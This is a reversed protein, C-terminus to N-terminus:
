KHKGGMTSSVCKKPRTNSTISAKKHNCAFNAVNLSEVYNAFHTTQDRYHNLMDM